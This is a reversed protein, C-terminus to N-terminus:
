KDFIKMISCALLDMHINQVYKCKCAHVAFMISTLGQLHDICVCTCEFLSLFFFYGCVLLNVLSCSFEHEFSM